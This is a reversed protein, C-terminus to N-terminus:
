PGADSESAPIRPLTHAAARRSPLALNRTPPSPLDPTLPIIEIRSSSRADAFLPEFFTGIPALLAPLQRVVTTAIERSASIVVKTIDGALGALLTVLDARAGIDDGMAALVARRHKLIVPAAFSVPNFGPIYRAGIGEILAVARGFYVLEGRLIIPWDYITRMVDDALTRDSLIRTAIDASAVGDFAMGLLVDVLRHITTMDTGPEVIGLDFFGRIVGDTDRSVASLATRILTRRMEPEVRVVMGFDLLVLRGDDTVLLNGPHPDAHFLGDVLMMQIYAEVVSEVVRQGSLTGDSIPSALSDVRTGEMYEMVIVRQRTLETEIAPVLVRSSTAFRDAIAIANAAEQRFDMEEGVRLAFEDVVVRFGRLHSNSWRASIIDLLRSVARIDMAVLDEVGPRLVKVVVDRGEYRARYVQGLSGSALPEANFAEFMEDPRRGYATVIEQEIKEFPVVPVRDVLTGLTGLYPEPVVDPRSAFIQALKVFTPGLSVLTGVLAAARREHFGANRELPAGFIIWRRFDRRFSVGLPLLRCLIILTRTHAM